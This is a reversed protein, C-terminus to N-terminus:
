EEFWASEVRSGWKVNIDETVPQPVIRCADYRKGYEALLKIYKGKQFRREGGSM